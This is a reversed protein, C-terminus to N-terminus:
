RGHEASALCQRTRSAADGCATRNGGSASWGHRADREVNEGEHPEAGEEARKRDAGGAEGERERRARQPQMHEVRQARREEDGGAAGHQVDADDPADPLVDLRPPERGEDDGAERAHRDADIHERTKSWCAILIASPM